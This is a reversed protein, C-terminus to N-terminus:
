EGMAKKFDNAFGEVDYDLPCYNIIYNYAKEILKEKNWQAGAKFANVPMGSLDSKLRTKKWWNQAAEELDDSVPEKYQNGFKAFDILEKQIDPCGQWEKYEERNKVAEELGVSASIGYMIVSADSEALINTKLEKETM